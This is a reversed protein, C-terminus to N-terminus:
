LEFLVRPKMYVYVHRLRTTVLLTIVSQLEFYDLTTWAALCLSLEDTCKDKARSSRRNNSHRAFHLNGTSMKAWLSSLIHDPANMDILFAVWPLCVAKVFPWGPRKASPGIIVFIYRKWSPHFEALTLAPSWVCVCWALLTEAMVPCSTSCSLTRKWTM